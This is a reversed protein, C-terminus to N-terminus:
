FSGYFASKLFSVRRHNSGPTIAYDFGVDFRLGKLRDRLSDIRHLLTKPWHWTLHELRLVSNTSSSSNSECLLLSDAPNKDEICSNRLDPSLSVGSVIRSSCAGHSGRSLFFHLQDVDIGSFYMGDRSPFSKSAHCIMLPRLPYVSSIFNSSLDPRRLICDAYSKLANYPYHVSSKAHANVVADEAIEFGTYVNSLEFRDLSCEFAKSRFYAAGNPYELYVNIKNVRGTELLTADIDISFMSLADNRVLDDLMNLDCGSSNMDVWPRLTSAVETPVPVFTSDGDIAWYLEFEVVGGDRNPVKTGWITNHHGLRNRLAVAIRKLKTNGTVELIEQFFEFSDYNRESSTLPEYNEGIYSRGLIREGNEMTVARSVYEEEESVLFSDLSSSSCYSCCVLLTMMHRCSLMIKSKPIKLFLSLFEEGRTHGFVSQHVIIRVVCLCYRWLGTVFCFCTLM